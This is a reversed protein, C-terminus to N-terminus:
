ISTAQLGALCYCTPNVHKTHKKEHQQAIKKTPRHQQEHAKINLLTHMRVGVLGGAVKLGFFDVVNLYPPVRERVAASSSSSSSSKSASAKGAAKKDAAAEEARRKEEAIERQKKGSVVV